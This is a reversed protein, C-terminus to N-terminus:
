SKTKLKSIKTKTSTTKVISTLMRILEECMVLENCFNYRVMQSEQFLTLWYYTERSEKSALAMKHLFDRTSEGALAESDNAGISTASRLLQKSMVYERRAILFKYLDIIELAFALAKENVISKEAMCANLNM